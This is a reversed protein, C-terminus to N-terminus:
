TSVMKDLSSGKKLNLSLAWVRTFDIQVDIGMNSTFLVLMRILWMWLYSLMWTQGSIPSFVDQHGMLYFIREFEGITCIRWRRCWIQKGCRVITELSVLDRVVCIYRKCCVYEGKSPVLNAKWPLIISTYYTQRKPCVDAKLPVYRGELSM